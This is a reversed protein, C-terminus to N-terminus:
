SCTISGKLHAHQQGPVKTLELDFTAGKLKPDANLTGNVSAGSTWSGQSTTLIVGLNSGTNDQIRLTWTGANGGASPLESSSVSYNVGKHTEPAYYACTGAPGSADITVGGTVRVEARTNAAASSSSAASAASTAEETRTDPVGGSSTPIVQAGGGADTGGGIGASGCATLGAGAALAALVAVPTLVHQRM